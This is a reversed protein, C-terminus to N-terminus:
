RRLFLCGEHIQFERQACKLVKTLVYAFSVNEANSKQSFSVLEGVKTGNYMIPCPLKPKKINESYLVVLRRPIHGRSLTKEIVEQGPYCGKHRCYYIESEMEFLFHSEGIEDPDLPLGGEIRMWSELKQIKYSSFLDRVSKKESEIYIGKLGNKWLPAPMHNEIPVKLPILSRIEHVHIKERVKWEIAEGFCYSELHVKLKAIQKKRIYLRWGKKIRRGSFLVLIKGKPTLFAGHAIKEGIIKQSCIRNLFDSSDKGLLDFVGVDERSKLFITEM